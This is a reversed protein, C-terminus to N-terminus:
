EGNSGTESSGSAGDTGDYRFSCIPTIGDRKVVSLGTQGGSLLLGALPIPEGTGVEGEPAAGSVLELYEVAVGSVLRYRSVSEGSPSTVFVDVTRDDVLVLPSQEGNRSLQDVLEAAGPVWTRETAITAAVVACTDQGEEDPPTRPEQSAVAALQATIADIFRRNEILNSHSCRLPDSTTRLYAAVYVPILASTADLPLPIRCEDVEVGGLGGVTPARATASSVSVLGDGASVTPGTSFLFRPEGVFDGAGAWVPVGEPWGALSALEASGVALARGAGTDTEGVIATVDLAEFLARVLTGLTSGDTPPGAWVSGEHPTGLTAVLAVKEAGVGADDLAFRAALGGMSHAVVAVRGPGGGELSADALCDIWEGLRPGIGPDDVWRTSVDGYDFVSMSMEASMPSANLADFLPMIAQGSGTFGHVIVVPLRDGPDAMGEGSFEQVCGGGSVVLAGSSVPLGLGVVAVVM